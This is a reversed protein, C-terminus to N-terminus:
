HRMKLAQLYYGLFVPQTSPEYSPKYLDKGWRLTVGMPTTQPVITYTMQKLKVISGPEYVVGNISVEGDAELTYTGPILIEFTQSRVHSNFNFHKGAVYLLGWHHIFNEKLINHDEELLPYNRFIDKAGRPLSLDLYVINAVIFVPQQRILIKHMIPVNAERYREMGMTTMNLGVKPYSSIMSCRDIYPVPQPFIQHVLQVIERQTVTQNFANRKYHISFNVFVILSAITSILMLFVVSGKKKYDDIIKSVFVGPFIIAPSIIFVYFYPFSNKYFILSILPILLPLMLMNESLQKNKFCILEWVLLIIGVLWFVWIFLNEVLILLMYVPEPFLGNFLIGRSAFANVVKVPSHLGEGSLTFLHYQYVLIFGIILTVTFFVIEKFIARRNEKLFIRCLFIAGIAPLYLVTKLSVMLSLAMNLGPAIVFLGSRPKRLLFYISMLFLFVCIPDFRFSSGHVIVNSISLYCLVSFLAGSKNLFLRGTLYIFICSGLGLIYMFVRAAFIQTVENESILPLWSFFHVHFTFFQIALAGQLYQHVISLFTFEDVDINLLFILHFKLLLTILIVIFLALETLVICKRTFISQQSNM